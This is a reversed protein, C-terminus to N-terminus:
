ICQFVKAIYLVAYFIETITGHKACWYLNPNPILTLTSTLNLTLTLIHIYTYTYPPIWNVKWYVIIDMVYRKSYQHAFCPVIVLIEVYTVARFLWIYSACSTPLHCAIRSLFGYLPAFHGIAQALRWALDCLLYMYLTIVLTGVKKTRMSPLNSSAHMGMPHRSAKVRVTSWKKGPWRFFLPYM